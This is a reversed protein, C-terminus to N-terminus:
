HRNPVTDTNQVSVVHWGHPTQELVYTLVGCRHVVWPGVPNAQGTLEWKCRLVAAGVGVFRTKLETFTFKSDAFLTEHLRRHNDLITAKGEWVAGFVNVYVADSEFDDFADYMDHRNWADAFRQAVDEILERDHPTHIPDIQHM